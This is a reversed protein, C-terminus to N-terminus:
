PRELLVQVEEPLQMCPNAQNCHSDDRCQKCLGEVCFEAREDSQCHDDGYCSPYGPSCGNATLLLGCAFVCVLLTNLIRNM